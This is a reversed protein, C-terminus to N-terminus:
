IIFELFLTRALSIKLKWPQHPAGNTPRRLFGKQHGKNKPAGESFPELPRLVVLIFRLRNSFNQAMKQHYGKETYIETFCSKWLESFPIKITGDLLDHWTSSPFQISIPDKHYKPVIGYTCSNLIIKYKGTTSFNVSWFNSKKSTVTGSRESVFCNHFVTHVGFIRFTFFLVNNRKKRM